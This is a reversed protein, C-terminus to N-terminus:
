TMETQWGLAFNGPEPPDHRTKGPEALPTAVAHCRADRSGQATLLGESATQAGRNGSKPVRVLRGGAISWPLGDGDTVALKMVKGPVRAAMYGAIGVWLWHWSASARTSLLLSCWGGVPDWAEESPRRLVSTNLVKVTFGEVDPPLLDFIPARYPRAVLPHSSQGDPGVAVVAIDRSALDPANTRM